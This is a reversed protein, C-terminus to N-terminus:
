PNNKARDADRASDELHIQAKPIDKQYYKLAAWLALNPVMCIGEYSRRRCMTNFGLIASPTIGALFPGTLLLFSAGRRKPWPIKAVLTVATVYKTTYDHIIWIPDQVNTNTLIYVIRITTPKNKEKKPNARGPPPPSRFSGLM